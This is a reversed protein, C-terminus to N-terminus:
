WNFRLTTLYTRGPTLPTNYALKNPKYGFLNDVGFYLDFVKFIKQSIGLKALTAANYSLIEFKNDEVRVGSQFGSLYRIAFTASIGYNRNFTHEWTLMGVLSHPRTSTSLVKSGDEKHMPNGKDDQLTYYDYTYAYSGTLTFGYPLKTRLNLDIGYIRDKNDSAPANAYQYGGKTPIMAIRNRVINYFANANLSFMRNNYEVSLIFMNSKEPKLKDNGYLYFMGQHDFFFYLEQMSPTRYGQAFSARLNLMSVPRFKLTVRNTYHTGFNSRMDLRGGYSLTLEKIPEYSYQGYVIGTQMSKANPSEPSALRPSAIKDHIFEGGFNLMHEENCDLNYQLRLHHLFENFVPRKENDLLIMVSDRKFNNFHYSLDLSQNHDIMCVAGFTADTAMFSNNLYKDKQQMRYNANVGAKLSVAKIPQYTFKQSFNIRDVDFVINGAGEDDVIVFGPAKNYGITTNSGFKGGGVPRNFVVNGWYRQGVLAKKNDRNYKAVDVSALASAHFKKKSSKTIVNVVGALANSGYLASAAGRIIEVREINDPDIRDFDISSTSGTTILDGDVLFLLSQGGFGRYSLNDQGGHKNFEVGPLTFELIENFSRPEILQIQKQPIVQTLVPIDKHFRPTRSATVVVEDLTETKEKTYRTSDALSARKSARPNQAFLSLSTISLLFIFLGQQALKM